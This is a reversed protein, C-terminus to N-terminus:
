SDMVGNLIWLINERCYDKNIKHLWLSELQDSLCFPVPFYHWGTDFRTARMVNWCGPVSLRSGLTRLLTRKNMKLNECPNTMVLSVGWANCAGFHLYHCKTKRMKLYTLRSQLHDVGPYEVDPTWANPWSGVSAPIRTQVEFCRRM